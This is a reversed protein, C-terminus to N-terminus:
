LVDNFLSKSALVVQGDSVRRVQWYCGKYPLEFQQDGLNGVTTFKPPTQAALGGILTKMYVALRADFSREVSQRYLSTLILGAVLLAVASWLTAAVILRVALSNPRM